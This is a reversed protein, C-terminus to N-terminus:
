ITALGNGFQRLDLIQAFVNRIFQFHTQNAHFSSVCSVSKWSLPKASTKVYLLTLECIAKYGMGHDVVFAKMSTGAM